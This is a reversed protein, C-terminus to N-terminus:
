QFDYQDIVLKLNGSLNGGVVISSPTITIKDFSVGNVKGKLDIGKMINYNSLMSNSSTMVENIEDKLSITLYPEIMKIFKRHMMWNASKVLANKTKVDFDFDSVHLTQTQNDFELKGICFVTGNASGTVHTEVVLLGDHGFFNIKDIIIHKGAEKFEQGIIKQAAIDALKKYSVDVNLQLNFNPKFSNVLQYNPLVINKNPEPQKGVTTEVIANLGLNFNIHKANEIVPTSVVNKPMVKLWAEYEKNMLMPIQAKEWTKEMMNKIDLKKAIGEDIAKNINKQLANIAINAIPTIPLDYGALNITPKETWEYNTIATSTIIKWDSLLQYTTSLQITIGGRAEYFKEIKAGLVTKSIGTKLWIKIPITCNIKNGSVSFHIDQQKWIKMMRNDDAINNDEYIINKLYSNISKEINDVNIDISLGITSIKNEIAPAIYGESPKEINLQSTKCSSLLLVLSVIFLGINKM